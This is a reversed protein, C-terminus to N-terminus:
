RKIADRPAAKALVAAMRTQWGPGSARWRALTSPPLRLAIQERPNPLKPRGRVTQKARALSVVRGGVKWRGNKLQGETLEPLEDYEAPQVVHADVKKM